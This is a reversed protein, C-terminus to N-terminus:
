EYYIISTFDELDLSAGGVLVGDINPEAMLQKINDPKVSGGYQIRVKEGTENGFRERILNRIFGIVEEADQSTANRGTGIAWVPEYAIVLKAVQEATLDLLGKEVQRQCVSFTVGKEREELTEGVCFIPKLGAALAAKLRRNVTADTEGFYQRRESHGCIVYNCNLDLLMQPSVEGTYAGKEEWFVNQAGVQLNSGQVAQAVTELATYPPCIVIEIGQRRSVRNKLEKAFEEAERRLKHMKWNGAIIPM